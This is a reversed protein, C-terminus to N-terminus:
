AAIADISSLAPCMCAKPDDSKGGVSAAPSLQSCSSAAIVLMAKDCGGRRNALRNKNVVSKTLPPCARTTKARPRSAPRRWYAILHEGQSRLVGGQFVHQIIAHGAACCITYYMSTSTTTAAAAAAAAAATTTTSLIFVDGYACGPCHCNWNGSICHTLSPRVMHSVRPRNSLTANSNSGVCLLTSTIVDRAGRKIVDRAGRKIVDRAGRKIVDRAGRKIVDRAGRQTPHYGFM